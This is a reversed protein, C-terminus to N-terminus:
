SVVRWRPVEGQGEFVGQNITEALSWLKPVTALRWADVYHRAAKPTINELEGTDLRHATGKRIQSYPHALLAVRIGLLRLLASKAKDDTRRALALAHDITRAVPKSFIAPVMEREVPGATAERSGLVALVDEKALKVRSNAVLAEGITVSRLALDTGIVRGFGQAKAFLAISAGGM